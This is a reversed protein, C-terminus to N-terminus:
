NLSDDYSEDSCFVTRVLIKHNPLSLSLKAKVTRGEPIPGERELKVTTVGDTATTVLATEVIQGERFVLPSKLSKHGVSLSGIEGYNGNLDTDTVLYLSTNPSDCQISAFVNAGALSALFLIMFRM